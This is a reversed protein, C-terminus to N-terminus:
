NKHEIEKTSRGELAEIGVVAIQRQIEELAELDINLLGLDVELDTLHIKTVRIIEQEKSSIQQKIEEVRAKLWKEKLAPPAHKVHEMQQKIRKVVDQRTLKLDAM